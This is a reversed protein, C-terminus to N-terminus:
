KTSPGVLLLVLGNVYGNVIGKSGIRPRSKVEVSSSQPDYWDQIKLSKYGDEQNKMGEEPNSHHVQNQVRDDNDEKSQQSRKRKYRASEEEIARKKKKKGSKTEAADVNAVTNEKDDTKAEESDLSKKKKSKKDSKDVDMEAGSFCDIRSAILCKNALYRAMRGKNKASARGIFSSHFILGYKPTNGKTKLARFLAKDAGLIQLTSSPCKALNTLSGEHSILRAGVVEGILTALNPAIDNIKSVLYDYLKKRAPDCDVLCYVLLHLKEVLLRLVTIIVCRNTKCFCDNALRQFVSEKEMVLIYDAVSIIDTLLFRGDHIKQFEPVWGSYVYGLAIGTPICMYFIGLWATRQTVPANDDIFPAALSIFSAGGVGVLMRCVTISWFDISIGCGVVAFTWVSLRPVDLPISALSTCYENLFSYQVDEGFTLGALVQTDQGWVRGSDQWWWGVERPRVIRGGGCFVRAIGCCGMPWLFRVLFFPPSLNCGILPCSISPNQDHH